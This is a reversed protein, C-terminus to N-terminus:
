TVRKTHTADQVGSQLSLENRREDQFLKRAEEWTLEGFQSRTSGKEFEMIKVTLDGWLQKRKGGRRKKGDIMGEIVHKGRM